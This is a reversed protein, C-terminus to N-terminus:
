KTKINNHWKRNPRALPRKVETKGILVRKIRTREVQGGIMGEQRHTQMNAGEGMQLDDGDEFERGAV